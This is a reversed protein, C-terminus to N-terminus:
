ARSDSGVAGDDPRGHGLWTLGLNFSAFFDRRGEIYRQTRNEGWLPGRNSLVFQASPVWNECCQDLGLSLVHTRMAPRRYDTQLCLQIGRGKAEAPIQARSARMLRRLFRLWCPWMVPHVSIGESRPRGLAASNMPDLVSIDGM